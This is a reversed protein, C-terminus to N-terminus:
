LIIPHMVKNKKKVTSMIRAVVIYHQSKIIVTENKEFEEAKTKHKVSYKKCKKNLHLQM